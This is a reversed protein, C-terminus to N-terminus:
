AYNLLAQLRRPFHPLLIDIRVHGGTTLGFALAWLGGIALAYGGFEDTVASSIGFFKRGVVDVTIFFSIVLLVAGAVYAMGMAVRDLGGLLRATVAGQGRRVSGSVPQVDGLRGPGRAQALEPARGQDGDGQQGGGNGAHDPDAGHGEGQEQGPRG